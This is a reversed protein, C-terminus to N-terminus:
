SLHWYDFLKTWYLYGVVLYAAYLHLFVHRKMGPLNMASVAIYPLLAGWVRFSWPIFPNMTLYWALVAVVFVNRRIYERGSLCQLLLLVGWISAQLYSGGGVVYADGTRRDGLAGLVLQNGITLALGVLVGGSIAPLLVGKGKLVRLAFRVGYYMCLLALTSSHVCLAVVFLCARLLASEVSLAILVVAWALGNRIGSLAVDIATPNLLFLLATGPHLRKFLYVGWIFLIVFSVIRLAIAADGTVDTLTRVTEHWLFESLLYGQVTTTQTLDSKTVDYTSYYNFDRVYNEFDSFGARSVEDWPFFV